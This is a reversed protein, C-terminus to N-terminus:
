FTLTIVHHKRTAIILTQMVNIINASVHLQLVGASDTGQVEPFLSWYAPVSPHGWRHDKPPVFDFPCLTLNLSLLTIFILVLSLFLLPKSVKSFTYDAMVDFKTPM